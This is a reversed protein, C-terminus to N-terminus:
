MPSFQHLTQHQQEPFGATGIQMQEPMRQFM